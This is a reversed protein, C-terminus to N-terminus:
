ILFSIVFAPQRGPGPEIEPPSLGASFDIKHNLMAPAQQSDFGFQGILRAIAVRGTQTMKELIMRGRGAAEQEM